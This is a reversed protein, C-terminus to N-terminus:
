RASTSARCTRIPACCKAARPSAGEREDDHAEIIPGLTLAPSTASLSSVFGRLKDAHDQTALWGTFFGVQGGGPLFRGLLEGAM